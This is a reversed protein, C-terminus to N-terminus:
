EGFHFSKGGITTHGDKGEGDAFDGLPSSKGFSPFEGYNTGYFFSGKGGAPVCLIADQNYKMGLKAIIGFFHDKDGNTDAVFFTDEASGFYVGKGAIVMYGLKELNSKLKSQNQMNEEMTVEEGTNLKPDKFGEKKNRFASIFASDHEM